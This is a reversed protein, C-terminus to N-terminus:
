KGKPMDSFGGSAEDHCSLVFKSAAKPNPVDGGWYKLARVGASTARLTPALRVNPQPAMSLFGGTSTQLKQVYAITQKVGAPEDAWAPNFGVLALGALLYHKMALGGM